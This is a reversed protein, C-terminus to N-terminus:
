GTKASSAYSEGLTALLSRRDVLRDFRRSPSLLAVFEGPAAAVTRVREETTWSRDDVVCWEPQVVDRLLGDTLDASRLWTAHEWTTASGPQEPLRLWGDEPDPTGQPQQWQVRELFQQAVQLPDAHISGTRVDAWWEDVDPLVTPAAADPVPAMPPMPPNPLRGVHNAEAELRAERLWPHAAALARMVADVSAVALFSRAVDGRTAVFVVVRVGKLHGLLYSFLYLRTTLWEDGGSRLDVVFYEASGPTKLAERLRLFYADNVQQAAVLGRVDDGGIGRWPPDAPRATAFEVSVSMVSVKTVRGAVAGLFVAIPERLVLGLVLVVAPWLAHEVLSTWEEATM